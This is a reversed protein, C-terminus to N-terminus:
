FYCFIFSKFSSIGFFCYRNILISKGRLFTPFLGLHYHFFFYLIKANSSSFTSFISKEDINGSILLRLGVVSVRLISFFKRSESM